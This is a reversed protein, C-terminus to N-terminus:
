SIPVDVHLNRNKAKYVSMTGKSMIAKKSNELLSMPSIAM